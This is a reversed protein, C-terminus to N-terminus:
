MKKLTFVERAVDIPNLTQNYMGKALKTCKEIFKGVLHNQMRQNYDKFSFDNQKFADIIACAALDGYSLAFHIGGGFAPEIGVADGALIINSQSIVDEKGYWRIPHSSWDNIGSSIGREQLVKQFVSMMDPKKGQPFVRFNGIGHCMYPAGNRICPLHWIYGQVNQKQCNMDLVIRKEQFETDYLPNVPSFFEFTPALHSRNGLDMTRRVKSLAGDAGVVVKVLYKGKDTQVVVGGDIRQMSVFSENEHLALGRHVATKVLAHDFDKRQVMMFMNRQHLLFTKKGYQFEIDSVMVKPIDIDVHLNKLVLPSWAGVGGGCIKDRPYCAKEILISQKALDPAYKQLHLWTSVGAPGGGVIMIDFDVSVHNGSKKM